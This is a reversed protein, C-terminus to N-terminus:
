PCHCQRRCHRRRAAVSHRAGLKVTCRRGDGANTGGRSLPADDARATRWRGRSSGLTSTRTALRQDLPARRLRLLPRLWGSRLGSGHQTQPAPRLKPRHSRAQSLTVKVLVWSSGVRIKLGVDPNGSTDWWFNGASPSTPASGSVTVSGGILNKVVQLSAVGGRSGVAQTLDGLILDHSLTPTVRKSTLSLDVATLAM